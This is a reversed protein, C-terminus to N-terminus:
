SVSLPPDNPIGYQEMKAYLTNRAIGLKRAAKAKNWGTETLAQLIIEREGEPEASRLERRSEAAHGVEGELIEPPLDELTITRGGAVM